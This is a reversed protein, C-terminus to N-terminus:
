EVRHAERPSLSCCWPCVTYITNAAYWKQNWKCCDTAGFRIPKPNIFTLWVMKIPRACLPWHFPLTYSYNQDATWYCRCVAVVATFPCLRHFWGRHTNIPQLHLVILKKESCSSDYNHSSHFIKNQQYNVTSWTLIFLRLCMNIIWIRSPHHHPTM